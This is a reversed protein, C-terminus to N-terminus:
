PLSTVTKTKDCNFDCSSSKRKHEKKHTQVNFVPTCMCLRWKSHFYFRMHFDPCVCVCLVINMFFVLGCDAYYMGQIHLM